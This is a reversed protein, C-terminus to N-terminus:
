RQIDEAEAKLAESYAAKVSGGGKAGWGPDERAGFDVARSPDTPHIRQVVSMMRKWAQLWKRTAEDSMIHASSSRGATTGRVKDRSAMNFQVGVQAVGIPWPSNGICVKMYVDM